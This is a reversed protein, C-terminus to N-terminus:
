EGDEYIPTESKFHVDSGDRSFSVVCDQPEGAEDSFRFKVEGDGLYQLEPPSYPPAELGCFQCHGNKDMFALRLNESERDTFMVVGVLEYAGDPAPVSAIVEEAPNERLFVTNLEENTWQPQPSAAMEPSDTDEATKTNEAAEAGSCGVLLLAAALILAVSKKLKMKINERGAM